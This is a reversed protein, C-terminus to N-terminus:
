AQVPRAPRQFCAGVILAVVTGGIVASVFALATQGGTSLSIRLGHEIRDLKEGDLGSAQYKALQAQLLLDNLGPDIVAFYVPVWILNFIATWLATAVGAWLADGYTFAQNPDAAARRERVALTIFLIGFGWHCVTHIITAVALRASDSHLGAVFLLLAVAFGALAIYLGHTVYTKM